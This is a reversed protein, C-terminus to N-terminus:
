ILFKISTQLHTLTKFYTNNANLVSEFVNLYENLDRDIHHLKISTSPVIFLVYCKKNLWNHLLFFFFESCQNM